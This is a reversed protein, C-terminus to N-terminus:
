ADGLLRQARTPSRGHDAINSWPDQKHALRNVVSTIRYSDPRTRGLEDWDLPTAVPAGPRARLSFPTISTQGYSNRNTDIFIRDGRKNKRQEVTLRDPDEHVMRDAIERSLPHVVEYDASGDLPAVVHFGKGGTALVFAKLEISEFLERVKYAVNRLEAAAVGPPPDIDIVLRNPRELADAPSLWSHFELCAQNALYVLAATDDCVAHHVDSEGSRQPVSVTRIWDPFYDPAEKQFFGDTEIGDPFRLMSLPRGRLHPMMVDAVALYYSVVDGKAVDDRPYLEKEVKSIDISHDGIELTRTSM